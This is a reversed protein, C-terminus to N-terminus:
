PHETAPSLDGAQGTPHGFYQQTFWDPIGDSDSDYTLAQGTEFGFAFNMSGNGQMEAQQTQAQNRLNITDAVIGSDIDTAVANYSAGSYGTGGFRLYERVTRSPSTNFLDVESSSSILSGLHSQGATLLDLLDPSLGLRVYLQVFGTTTYSAQLASKAPAL